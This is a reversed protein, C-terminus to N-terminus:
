SLAIRRYRELEGSLRDLQLLLEAHALTPATAELQRALAAIRMAGVNVASSKLSHAFREVSLGDGEQANCHLANRLLPLNKDLETLFIDILDAPKINAMDTVERLADADFVPLTDLTDNPAHTM